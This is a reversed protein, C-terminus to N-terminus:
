RLTVGSADIVAKCPSAACSFSLDTWGTAHSSTCMIKDENWQLSIHFDAMDMTRKENDMKDAMGMEDIYQISGDAPLKFSLEKWACGRTCELNIADSDAEVLITFEPGIKETAQANTSSYSMSFIVFSLLAYVTTLTSKKM